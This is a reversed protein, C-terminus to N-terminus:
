RFPKYFSKHAIKLMPLDGASDGFAQIEHFKELNYLKAIRNVKEIGHCNKGNIKGTLRGDIVELETAITEIEYQYAWPTIWNGVSASVIVMKFNELRLKGITELAQPRIIRPIIKSAFGNCLEQFEDQMCDKFFYAIIKEKVWHNSVIKMKMLVLWHFNVAFGILFKRKGKAYILFEVLSDKTTITGDFDFFAIASSEAQPM